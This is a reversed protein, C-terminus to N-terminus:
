IFIAFSIKANITTRTAVWTTVPWNKFQWSGFKQAFFIRLNQGDMTSLQGPFGSRDVPGQPQQLLHGHHFLTLITCNLSIKALRM